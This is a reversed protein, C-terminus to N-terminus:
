NGSNQESGFTAELGTILQQQEADTLRAEPHLPLYTPLPMGGEEVEGAAKRADEGFGPVSANFKGRGESVHHQISWSIPAVNSYWPWKTENSHCDACARVFLAKTQPTDWNPTAQVAPNAHAHGYPVLQILLFLGILGLFIRPVLLILRSQSPV